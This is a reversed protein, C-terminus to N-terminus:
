SGTPAEAPEPEGMVYRAMEDLMSDALPLLRQHEGELFTRLEAKLEYTRERAAEAASYEEAVYQLYASDDEDPVWDLHEDQWVLQKERLARMTDCEVARSLQIAAERKMSEAKVRAMEAEVRLMGPTLYDLPFEASGGVEILVGPVGGGLLLGLLQGM